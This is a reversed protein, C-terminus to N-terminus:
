REEDEKMRIIGYTQFDKNKLERRHSLIGKAVALYEVSMMMVLTM